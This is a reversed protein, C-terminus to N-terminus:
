SVLPFLWVLPLSCFLSLNEMLSCLSSPCLSRLCGVTQRQFGSPLNIIVPGLINVGFYDLEFHPGAWWQGMM